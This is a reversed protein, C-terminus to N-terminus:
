RHIFGYQKKAAEYAARAEEKTDFCGLHQQKGVVVIQARWKNNPKNWYYGRCKTNHMNTSRDVERLNTHVNNRKDGDIHDIDMGDTPKKGTTLIWVVQHMPITKGCVKTRLYGHSSNWVSIVAGCADESYATRWHVTHTKYNYVFRDLIFEVPNTPVGKIESM